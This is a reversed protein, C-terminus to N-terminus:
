NTNTYFDGLEVITGNTLRLPYKIPFTTRCTGIMKAQKRKDRVECFRWDTVWNIDKKQLDGKYFKLVRKWYSRYDSGTKYESVIVSWLDSDNTFVQLWHRVFGVLFNKVKKISYFYILIDM